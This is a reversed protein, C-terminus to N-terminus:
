ILGSRDVDSGRSFENLADEVSSENIKGPHYPLVSFTVNEGEPIDLGDYEIAVEVNGLYRPEPLTSSDQVKLPVIGTDICNDLKIGHVPDRRNGTKSRLRGYGTQGAEFGPSHDYVIIHPEEVTIQDMSSNLVGLYQNMSSSLEGNLPTNKELMQAEQQLDRSEMRGLASDINDNFSSM